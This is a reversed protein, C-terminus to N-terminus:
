AIGIAISAAGASTGEGPEDEPDGGGGATRLNKGSLKRKM